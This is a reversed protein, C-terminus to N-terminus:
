QGQGGEGPRGPVDAALATRIARLTAWPDSEFGQGGGCIPCIVDGMSYDEGRERSMHEVNKPDLCGWAMPQGQYGCDRCRYTAALKATEAM